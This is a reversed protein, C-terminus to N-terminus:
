RSHDKGGKEAPQKPSRPLALRDHGASHPAGELQPVLSGATELSFSKKDQM